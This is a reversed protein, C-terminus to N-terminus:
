TLDVLASIATWYATGRKRRRMPPAENVLFVLRPDTREGLSCSQSQKGPLHTEPRLPPSRQTLRPPPPSSPSAPNLPHCAGPGLREWGGSAALRGCLSARRAAPRPPQTPKKLLFCPSKQRPLAPRPPDLHLDATGQLPRTAPPPPPPPRKGGWLETWLGHLWETGPRVATGHGGHKRQCQGTFVPALHHSALCHGPTSRWGAQGRPCRSGPGPPHATELPTPLWPQCQSSCGPTPDSSPKPPAPAPPHSRPKSLRGSRRKGPWPPEQSAPRATPPPLWCLPRAARTPGARAGDGAWGQAWHAWCGASEPWPHRVETGQQEAQRQPRQPDLLGPAPHLCAGM